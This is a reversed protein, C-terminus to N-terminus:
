AQRLRKRGIMIVVIAALKPRQWQRDSETLTGFQATREANGDDTSQQDALHQGEVRGRHDIEIEVAEPQRRLAAPSNAMRAKSGSAKEFGAFSPAKASKIAACM